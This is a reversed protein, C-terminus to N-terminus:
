SDAKHEGVSPASEIAALTPKMGLAHGLERVTVQLASEITTASQIKQTILNLEEQQRARLATLEQLRKRETIDTVSARVRPKDGPMRVLRVECPIDQGQANRHTWDFVPTKGQMAEGIKEMAKETSDRGDPQNPPSMQAPGVKVLEERPLGYLKIANENPNTFQGTNLDIVVIAEPANDVLSQAEQLAADARTYLEANQLSIAVQVALSELLTIDEPYIDNTMNDQVDLVGLVKDGFFIPVVAEAKTDPLLENPLWNPDQSTDSVLIAKKTDAARGVLGLGKPLSHGRKMMAEGAEGTGATLVLNEGSADFLYIQAYYYKFATQIQNVVAGALERPDLISALRRSVEASTELAKTREAVRQELNSYNEQLDVRMSDLATALSAVEQYGEVVVQTSLEGSGIRQAVNSLHTLPALANRMFLYVLASTIVLAVLIALTLTFQAQGLGAQLVGQDFGYVVTGIVQSGVAIPEAILLYQGIEQEQKSNTTISNLSLSKIADAEPIWESTVETLKFLSTDYVAAYIITEGDVFQSIVSNAETINLNYVPNFLLKSSASTIPRSVERVANRLNVSSTQTSIALLAGFAVLLIVFLIVPGITILRLRSQKM